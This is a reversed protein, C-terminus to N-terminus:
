LSSICVVLVLGLPVAPGLYIKQGVHIGGRPALRISVLVISCARRSLINSRRALKGITASAAAATVYCPEIM